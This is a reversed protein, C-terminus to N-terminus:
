KLEEKDVVTNSNKYIANSRVYGRVRSLPYISTNKGIVTGPNLVSGCGVETYDGVIAGLKRMGTKIEESGYFIRVNSKDNKVNSTVAGAGLHAKYGIISDGIYNYHPAQVNDFLIVNKLETSNGVVTNKGIIAAGRIFACHRIEALEDIICPAGIYASDAIKATNSIWIGDSVKTYKKSDLTEGLFCIYEKIKLVAEHPYNCGDFIGNAVTKDLSFINQFLM